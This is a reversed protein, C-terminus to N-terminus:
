WLWGKILTHYNIANLPVSKEVLEKRLTNVRMIGDEPFPTNACANFLGTYTAGTRKVGAKKM